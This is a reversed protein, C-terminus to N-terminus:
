AVDEENEVAQAGVDVGHKNKVNNQKRDVQDFKVSDLRIEGVCTTSNQRNLSPDRGIPADLISITSHRGTRIIIVAQGDPM